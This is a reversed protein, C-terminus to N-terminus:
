EKNGLKAFWPFTLPWVVGAVVVILFYRVGRGASAGFLANLVDKTGNKVLYVIGLGVVIKIIQAWWIAKVPFHM